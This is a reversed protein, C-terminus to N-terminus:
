NSYEYSINNTLRPTPQEKLAVSVRSTHLSKHRLFICLYYLSYSYPCSYPCSFSCFYCCSCSCIAEVQLHLAELQEGQGRCSRGEEQQLGRGGGQGKKGQAARAGGEEGMGRRCPAPPLLGLPASPDDRGGRFGQLNEVEVLCLGAM